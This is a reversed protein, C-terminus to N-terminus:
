GIACRPEVEVGDFSFNDCRHAGTPTAPKKRAQPVLFRIARRAGAEDVSGRIVNEDYRTRGNESSDGLRCHRDMELKGLGRESPPGWGLVRPGDLRQELVVGLRGSEGIDSHSPVVGVM